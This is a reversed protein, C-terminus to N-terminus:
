APVPRAIRGYGIAEMVPYWHDSDDASNYPDYGFQRFEKVCERFVKLSCKM